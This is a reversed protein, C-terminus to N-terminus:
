RRGGAHEREAEREVVQHLGENVVDNLQGRLRRVEDEVGEQEALRGLEAEIRALQSGLREVEEDDLDDGEMRRVAERELADVLIEVVAVVLAVLSTTADEGDLELETM